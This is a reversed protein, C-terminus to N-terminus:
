AGSHSDIENFPVGKDVRPESPLGLVREAIINKLVEDTGGAIRMAAGWMWQRQLEAVCDEGTGSTSIARDQLLDLLFVAIEQGQRAALLKVLSQEPGPSQGQSLATITRIQELRLGEEQIYWDVIRERVRLDVMAPRGGLRAARAFQIATACTAVPLTRAVSLREHMLATIAVKWGDGVDGIRHADPIRLNSLFVENFEAAGTAQRLPRIDVGTSRMDVIFMTLGRHKPVLADTRALVLGFDSYHAGSTWVKQGNLLWHEGERTAKTRVGALDSGAAPESFLQCWIEEGYLAPAVYRRRHLETGHAILPPLCIGLGISFFDFPVDFQSEEKEYIIAQTVTGGFGGLEPSWTIAAYGAAAKKRQWAKARALEAAEDGNGNWRLRSTRKPLANSELWRRASARFAAEEATDAFNLVSESRRM